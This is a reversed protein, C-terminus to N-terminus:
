RAKLRFRRQLLKSERGKLSMNTFYYLLVHECSGYVYTQDNIYIEEARYHTRSNKGRKVSWHVKARGLLKLRVGECM